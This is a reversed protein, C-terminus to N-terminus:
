HNRKGLLYGILTALLPLLAKTVMLDFIKENREALTTTLDKYHQISAAQAEPPLTDLSPLPVRWAVLLFLSIGLISLLIMAAFCIAVWERGTLRNRVEDEKLTFGSPVPTPDPLDKSGYSKSTLAM